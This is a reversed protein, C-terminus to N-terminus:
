KTLEYSKNIMDKIISCPMTENLIVTNWHEKNLHYGPIVAEYVDRLLYNEELIGKLSISTYDKRESIIAFIKKNGDHRITATEM